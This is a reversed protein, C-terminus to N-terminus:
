ANEEETKEIVENTVLTEEQKVDSTQTELLTSETTEKENSGGEEGGGSTLTGGEPEEKLDKLRQENDGENDGLASGGDGSTVSGESLVSGSVEGSTSCTESKTEDVRHETASHRRGQIVEKTKEFVSHTGEKTHQWASAVKPAAITYASSATGKLTNGVSHATNVSASRFRNVLSEDSHESTEDNKVSSETTTTNSTSDPASDEGGASSKAPSKPTSKFLSFNKTLSASRIRGVLSGDKDDSSAEKESVNDSSGKDGVEETNNIPPHNPDDNAKQQTVEHASDTSKLHAKQKIIEAGQHLSVAATSATKSAVTKTVELAGASMRKAKGWFSSITTKGTETAAPAVKEAVHDEKEEGEESITTNAVTEDESKPGSSTEHKHLDTIAKHLTDSTAKATASARKILNTGVNLAVDTIKAIGHETNEASQKQNSSTSISPDQETKENDESSTMSIDELVQHDTGNSSSVVTETVVRNNSTETDHSDSTLTFGESSEQEDNEGDTM